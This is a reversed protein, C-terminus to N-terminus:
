EIEDGIQFIFGPEEGRIMWCFGEIYHFLTMVYEMPAWKTCALFDGDPDGIWIPIGYYAGHHTFGHTKAVKATMFGLASLLREFM